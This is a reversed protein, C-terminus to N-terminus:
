AVANRAGNNLRCQTSLYNEKRKKKEKKEKRKKKKAYLSASFRGVLSCVYESKKKENRVLSIKHLYFSYCNMSWDVVSATDNEVLSSTDSAADDISFNSVEGCFSSIEDEGNISPAPSADTITSSSSAYAPSPASEAEEVAKQLSWYMISATLTLLM